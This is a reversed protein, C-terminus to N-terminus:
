MQQSAAQKQVWTMKKQTIFIKSLISPFTTFCDICQKIEYSNMKLLDCWVRFM